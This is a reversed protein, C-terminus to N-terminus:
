FSYTLKVRTESNDDARENGSILVHLVNLNLNKALDYSLSIDTEKDTFGEELDSHTYVLSLDVKSISTGLGIQYAKTGKIYSFVGGYIDNGTLSYDAGYGLGSEVDSNSTNESVSLKFNFDDYNGGVRFAVFNGNSLNSDYSTGMYQGQVYLKDLDYNAFLYTSEFNDVADLYQAELTLNKISNNQAYLTYAGKELDYSWPDRNTIFTKTFKGVGGNSDTRSQFRDVYIALIKTDKIDTNTFKYAQFSQRIMRSGSGALLPTGLFQRGIKIASNNIKYNIFSQSLVSGSADEDFVFDNYGSQNIVHSTQFTAAVSIGKFEATEYNLIGGVHFISSDKKVDDDAAFYYTKIDGSIKAKEFAGAITENASLNTYFLASAVVASLILKKTM